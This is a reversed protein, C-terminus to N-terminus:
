TKVSAIARQLFSFDMNRMNEAMALFQGAKLTQPHESGMVRRCTEFTESTLAIAEKIRGAGLFCRARAVSSQLTAPHEPGLVRKMGTLTEQWLPEAEDLNFQKTLEDALVSM